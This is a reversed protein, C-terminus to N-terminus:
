EFSELHLIGMPALHAPRLIEFFTIKMGLWIRCKCLITLILSFNWNTFSGQQHFLDSSFPWVPEPQYFPLVPEFLAEKYHVYVSSCRQIYLDFRSASSNCCSFAVNPAVRPLYSYSVLFSCKCNALSWM